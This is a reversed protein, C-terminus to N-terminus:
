MASLVHTSTRVHSMRIALKATEIHKYIKKVTYLAVQFM